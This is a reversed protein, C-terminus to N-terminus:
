RSAGAVHAARDLGQPLIAAGGDLLVDGHMPGPAAVGHELVRGVALDLAQHDLGPLHQRQLLVLAAALLAAAVVASYKLMRAVAIM